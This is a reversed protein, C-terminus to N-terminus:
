ETPRKREVQGHIDPLRINTPINPDIRNKWRDHNCTRIFDLTYELDMTTQGCAQDNTCEPDEASHQHKVDSLDIGHRRGMECIRTILDQQLFERDFKDHIEDLINQDLEPEMAQPEPAQPEPAQPEMAERELHNEPTAKIKVM